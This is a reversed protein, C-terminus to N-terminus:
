RGDKESDKRIWKGFTSEDVGALKAIGRQNVVDRERRVAAILDAKAKRAMENARRYQEAALVAPTTYTDNM